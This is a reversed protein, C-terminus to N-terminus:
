NNKADALYEKFALHAKLNEATVLPKKIFYEAGKEGLLVYCHEPANFSGFAARILIEGDKEYKEELHLFFDDEKITQNSFKALIKSTDYGNKFKLEGQSARPESQK